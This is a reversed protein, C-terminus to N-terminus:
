HHIRNLNHWENCPYESSVSQQRGRTITKKKSWWYAFADTAHAHTGTHHPLRDRFSYFWQLAPTDGVKRSVYLVCNLLSTSKLGISLGLFTHSFHSLMLPTLHCYFLSKANEICMVETCLTRPSSFVPLCVAFSCVRHSKMRDSDISHRFATRYGPWKVCVVFDYHSTVINDRWMLTKLPRVPEAHSHQSRVMEPVIWSTCMLRTMTRKICILASGTKMDHRNNIYHLM